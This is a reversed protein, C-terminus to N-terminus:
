GLQLFEMIKEVEQGISGKEKELIFGEPSRPDLASHAFKNSGNVIRFLSDRGNSSHGDHHHRIIQAFDDPFKWKIAIIYGLEQHDIGFTEREMVALDKGNAAATKVTEGYDDCSLYFVIKGIDHLLSITYVKPPDEILMRESLIKAGFAVHISHKWLTFLDQEKLKLKKLINEVFMLCTVIGRVEEFGITLMARQLEFVEVGRSYYASNAISIIKSCIAQDYQVVGSLENFSSNNNALIQLVKEMIGNLTPIVKLDSARSILTERSLHDTMHKYM